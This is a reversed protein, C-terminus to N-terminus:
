VGAWVMNIIPVIVTLVRYRYYRQDDSLAITREGAGGPDWLVLTDPSVMERELNGRTVIAMRVAKIRRQDAASPAAWGGTADVWSDVTQSGAPAVGYQVQFDVVQALFPRDLM